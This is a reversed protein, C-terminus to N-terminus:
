AGPYKNFLRTELLRRCFSLHPRAPSVFLFVSAWVSINATCTGRSVQLGM